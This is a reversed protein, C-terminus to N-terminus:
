ATTLLAVRKGSSCKAFRDRVRKQVDPDGIMELLNSEITRQREDEGSLIQQDTVLLFEFQYKLVEDYAKRMRPHLPYSLNVKRNGNGTYCSLYEAVASRADNTMLRARRDAVWCHVGRRGSYVWMIHKFGFDERLAADLLKVAVSM